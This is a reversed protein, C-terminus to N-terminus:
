ANGGPLKLQSYTSHVYNEMYLRMYRDDHVRDTEQETREFSSGILVEM